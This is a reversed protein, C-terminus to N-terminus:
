PQPKPAPKKYVSKKIPKTTPQAVPKVAPTSPKRTTNRPLDLWKNYLAPDRWSQATAPGCALLLVVMAYGVALVM